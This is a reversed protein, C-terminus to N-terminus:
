PVEEEDAVDEDAYFYGQGGANESFEVDEYKAEPNEAFKPVIYGKESAATFDSYCRPGGAESLKRLACDRAEDSTLGSDWGNRVAIESYICKGNFRGYGDYGAKIWKEGDPWIVTPKFKPKAYENMISRKTDGTNWSFFGM